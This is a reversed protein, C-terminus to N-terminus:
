LPKSSGQQEKQEMMRKLLVGVVFMQATSHLSHIDVVTVQQASWDIQKGRATSHGSVLHGM